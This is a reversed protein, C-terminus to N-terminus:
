KRELDTLASVIRNFAVASVRLAAAGPPARDHAPTFRAILRGEADLAEATEDPLNPDLEVRM